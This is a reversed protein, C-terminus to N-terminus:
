CSGSTREGFALSDSISFLVIELCRVPDGFVSRPEQMAPNWDESGDWGARGTEISEALSLQGPKNRVRGSGLAILRWNDQFLKETSCLFSFLRGLPADVPM